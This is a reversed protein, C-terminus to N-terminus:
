ASAAKAEAGPELLLENMRRVYAAPDAPANGEAILAHDLLVHSLSAFRQEDGEASLRKVLPHDVNIELVSKPEPLAQGAAELM